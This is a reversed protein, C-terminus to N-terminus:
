PHRDIKVLAKGLAPVVYDYASFLHCGAPPSVPLMVVHSTLPRVFLCASPM